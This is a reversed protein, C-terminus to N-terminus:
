EYRLSDSIDFRGGRYAPYWAALFSLFPALILVCILTSVDIQVPLFDLYYPSPLKFPHWKLLLAAFIALLAGLFTGGTGILLGIKTFLLIVRKHELGMARFIAIEKQKDVVLMMVLSFINFTSIIIMLGLILWMTMRELRLAALLKKNHEGWSEAQFKGAFFQNLKQAMQPAQFLKDSQLAWQTPVERAPVLKRAESLHILAFKNDYEYYGSKFTGIVKFRRTKPRMEGSPDPDGFPYILDVEENLSPFINLRKALEVGLIIGPLIEEKSALDSVSSGETYDVKLKQNLIPDTLELGKIKLGQASEDESRIIGETELYPFAGKIDLNAPLEPPTKGSYLEQSLPTLVIPSSFHLINSKVDSSFGSMVFQILLLSFVSIVVGLLGILALLSGLRNTDQKLLYRKAIQTELKM